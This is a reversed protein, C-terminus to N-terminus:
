KSRKAKGGAPAAPEGQTEASQPDDKVEPGASTGRKPAEQGGSAQEQEQEEGGRYPEWDTANKDSDDPIWEQADQGPANLKLKSQSNEVQHRVHHGEPWESRRMPQQQNGTAM